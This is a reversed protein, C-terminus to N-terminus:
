STTLHLASPHCQLSISVTSSKNTLFFYSWTIKNEYDTQSESKSKLKPCEPIKNVSSGITIHPQESVINFHRAKSKSFLHNEKTFYSLKLNYGTMKGQLFTITKPVKRLKKSKYDKHVEKTSTRISLFRQQRTLAKGGKRWIKKGVPNTNAVAYSGTRQTQLLIVFIIKCRKSQLYWCFKVKLWLTTIIQSQRGRSSSSPDCFYNKSTM